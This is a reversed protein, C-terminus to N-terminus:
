MVPMESASRCHNHKVFGAFLDLIGEVNRTRLNSILDRLSRETIQVPSESDM